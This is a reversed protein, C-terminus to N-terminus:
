PFNSNKLNRAELFQDLISAFDCESFVDFFVESFDIKAKIKAERFTEFDKSIAGFLSASRLRNRSAISIALFDDSLLPPCRKYLTWIAICIILDVGDM